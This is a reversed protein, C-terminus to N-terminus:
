IGNGSAVPFVIPLAHVQQQRSALGRAFPAAAAAAAAGNMIWM